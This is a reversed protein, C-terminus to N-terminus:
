TDFEYVGEISKERLLILIMDMIKRNIMKANFMGDEVIKAQKLSILSKFKCLTWKIWDLILKRIEEDVEVQSNSNELKKMKGYLVMTKRFVFSAYVNIVEKDNIFKMGPQSIDIWMGFLIEDLNMSENNEKIHLM